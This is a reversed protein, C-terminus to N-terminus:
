HYNNKGEELALRGETTEHLHHLDQEDVDLIDAIAERFPYKAVDYSFVKMEQLEVPIPSRSGYEELQDYPIPLYRQKKEQPTKSLLLESEM